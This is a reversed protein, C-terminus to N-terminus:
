IKSIPWCEWTELNDRIYEWGKKQGLAAMILEALERKTEVQDLKGARKLVQAMLPVRYKIPDLDGNMFHDPSPLLGLRVLDDQALDIGYAAAGDMRWVADGKVILGYQWFRPDDPGPGSYQQSAVFRVYRCGIEGAALLKLFENEVYEPDSLHKIAAALAKSYRLWATSVKTDVKAM